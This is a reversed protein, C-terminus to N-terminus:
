PHKIHAIVLNSNKFQWWVPITNVTYLWVVMQWGFCWSVIHTEFKWGRVDRGFLGLLCLEYILVQSMSYGGSTSPRHRWWGFRRRAVRASRAPPRPSWPLEHRHPCRAHCLAESPHPAHPRWTKDGPLNPIPTTTQIKRGRKEWPKQPKRFKPWPNQTAFKRNKRKSRPSSGKLHTQDHGALWPAQHDWPHSPLDRLAHRVVEPLQQLRSQRFIIPQIQTAQDGNPQKKPFCCPLQFSTPFFSSSFITWFLNSSTSVHFSHEPFPVFPSHSSKLFCPKSGRDRHSSKDEPAWSVGDCMFVVTAPFRKSCCKEELQSKAVEWSSISPYLQSMQHIYSNQKPQAGTQLFPQLQVDPVYMYM